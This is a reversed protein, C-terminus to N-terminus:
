TKVQKLPSMAQIVNLNSITSLFKAAMALNTELDKIEADKKLQIDIFDERLAINELNMKQMGAQMQAYKDRMEKFLIEFPNPFKKVREEISRCVEQAKYMELELVEKLQIHERKMKAIEKDKAAIIPLYSEHIADTDVGVSEVAVNLERNEQVMQAVGAEVATIQTDKEALLATLRDIEDQDSLVPVDSTMMERVADKTAKASSEQLERYRREAARLEEKDLMKQKAMKDLIDQYEETARLAAATAEDRVENNEEAMRAVQTEKIEIIEKLEEEIDDRQICVREYARKWTEIKDVLDQRDTFRMSECLQELSDIRDQFSEVISITEATNEKDKQEMLEELDRYKNKLKSYDGVMEAIGREKEALIDATEKMVGDIDLELDRIRRKQKKIQEKLDEITQNLFVIEEKLDKVRRNAELQGNPGLSLDYKKQLKEFMNMLNNYKIEWSDNIFEIENRLSTIHRDRNRIFAELEREKDEWSMRAKDYQVRIVKLEEEVILRAKDRRVIEIRLDGVDAVARKRLHLLEKEMQMIQTEYNVTLGLHKKEMDRIAAELIERDALRVTLEETHEEKLRIIDRERLNLEKVKAATRLREEEIQGEAYALEATVRQYGEEKVQVRKDWDRDLEDLKNGEEALRGQLRSIIDTKEVLERDRTRVISQCKQTVDELKMELRKMRKYPGNDGAMEGMATELQRKARLLELHGMEVAKKAAAMEKQVEEMVAAEELRTAAEQEKFLAIKRNLAEIDAERREITEKYPELEADRSKQLQTLRKDMKTIVTEFSQRMREINERNYNEKVEFDRVLKQYGLEKTEVAKEYPSYDVAAVEKELGQIKKKLEKIEKEFPQTATSLVRKVDELEEKVPKIERAARDKEQALLNASVRLKEVYEAHIHTIEKLVAETADERMKLEKLYKAEVPPLKLREERIKQELPPILGQLSDIKAKLVRVQSKWPDEITKLKKKLENREKVLPEVEAVRKEQEKLIEGELERTAVLLQEYSRGAVRLQVSLEKHKAKADAEQEAMIGELRRKEAAAYLREREVVTKIGAVSDALGRYQKVNYKASRKEEERPALPANEDAPPADEGGPEANEDPAAM